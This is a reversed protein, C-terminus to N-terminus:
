EGLHPPLATAPLRIILAGSMRLGAGRALASFRATTSTMRLLVEEVVWDILVSAQAVPKADRARVAAQLGESRAM